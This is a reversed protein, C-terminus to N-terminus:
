MLQKERNKTQKNNNTAAAAPTQLDRNKAKIAKLIKVIFRKMKSKKNIEMRNMSSDAETDLM